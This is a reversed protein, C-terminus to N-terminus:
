ITLNGLTNVKEVRILPTVAKDALTIPLFFGNRKNNNTFLNLATVEQTFKGQNEREKSNKNLKTADLIFINLYDPNQELNKIWVSNKNYSLQSLKNLSGNKDNQQYESLIQQM